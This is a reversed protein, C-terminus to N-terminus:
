APLSSSRAARRHNALLALMSSRELRECYVTCLSLATLSRAFGHVRRQYELVAALDQGNSYAWSWDSVWRLLSGTRHLPGRKLSDDLLTVQPLCNPATLFVLRGNHLLSEPRLGMDNLARALEKLCIPGALVVVQQGVEVGGAVFQLIEGLGKEKRIVLRCAADHGPHDPPHTRATEM